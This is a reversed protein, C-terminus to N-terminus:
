SSKIRTFTSIASWALFRFGTGFCTFFRKNVRYSSLEIVRTSGGRGIKFINTFNGVFKAWIPRKTPLLQSIPTKIKDYPVLASDPGPIRTKSWRTQYSWEAMKTSKDLKKFNFIELAVREEIKQIFKELNSFKKLVKKTEELIVDDLVLILGKKSLKVSNVSISALREIDDVLKRLYTVNTRIEKVRHFFNSGRISLSYAQNKEQMYTYHARRIGMRTEDVTLNLKELLIPFLLKRIKSIEKHFYKGATLGTLKGSQQPHSILNVASNSIRVLELMREVKTLTNGDMAYMFADRIDDYARNVAENPDKYSNVKAIEPQLEKFNFAVLQKLLAVIPNVVVNPSFADVGPLFYFISSPKRLLRKFLQESNLYEQIFSEPSELEQLLKQIFSEPNKLEQILKKSDYLELALNEPQYLEKLKNLETENVM